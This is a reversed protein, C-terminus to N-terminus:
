RPLDGYSSHMGVHLRIAELRKRIEIFAPRVVALVVALNGAAGGLLLLVDRTGESV